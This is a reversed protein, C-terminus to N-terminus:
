KIFSTNAPNGIAIKQGNSGSVVIGDTKPTGDFNYANLSTQVTAKQAAGGVNSFNFDVKTAVESM